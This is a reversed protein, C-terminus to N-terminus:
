ERLEEIMARARDQEYLGLQVNTWTRNLRRAYSRLKATPLRGEGNQMEAFAAALPAATATRVRIVHSRWFDACKHLDQVLSLDGTAAIAKARLYLRLPIHETNRRGDTYTGVNGRSIPDAERWQIFWWFRSASLYRWFGPDDLVETPLGDLYPYVAVAVRGEFPEKDVTLSPDTGISELDLKLQDLIEDLPDFDITEADGRWVASADCSPNSGNILGSVIEEVHGVTLTPYRM